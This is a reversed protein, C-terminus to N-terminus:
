LTVKKGKVPIQFENTILQDGDALGRIIISDKLYEVPKIPKGMITNDKLLLVKEDRSLVASPIVFVDDYTKTAFEGELYMGAKIGKGSIQFFVPINQTKPDVINNIRIVKGMWTDTLENSTFEIKDGIQLQSAIELSVGAELEYNENNIVTGLLQGPSVLGGIDVHTKTVM